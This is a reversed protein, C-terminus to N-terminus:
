AAAAVPPAHTPDALAQLEQRIMHSAKLMQKLPYALAAQEGSTDFQTPLTTAIQPRKEDLLDVMGNLALQVAEPTKPLAALIPIAATIQSALVHNQILLNNLEPVSLQHSKPESMMRYFAEAFNSFAIHVNKRALRWALDADIVAPTDTATAANTTANAAAATATNTGATTGANVGASTAPGAHTQMAEVYRLGALM